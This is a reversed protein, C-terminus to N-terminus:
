EESHMEQVSLIKSISETGNPIEDPLIDAEFGYSNLLDLLLDGEISKSNSEVRLIKDCDDLDFNAKYGDFGIHIQEILFRAQELDRVDTKFVEVM